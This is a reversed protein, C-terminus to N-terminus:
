GQNWANIRRGNQMCLDVIIQEHRLRPTIKTVNPCSFLCIADGLLKKTGRNSLAFFTVSTNIKFRARALFHCSLVNFFINNWALSVEKPLNCWHIASRKSGRLSKHKVLLCSWIMSRSPIEGFFVDVALYVRLRFSGRTCTYIGCRVTRATCIRRDDAYGAELDSLLGRQDRRAGDRALRCCVLPSHTTTHNRGDHGWREFDVQPPSAMEKHKSM